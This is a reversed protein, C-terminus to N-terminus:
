SDGYHDYGMDRGQRTRKNTLFGSTAEGGSVQHMEEESIETALRYALVREVSQEIKIGNM